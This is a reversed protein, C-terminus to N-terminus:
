HKLVVLKLLLNQQESTLKLFYVGNSVSYGTENCGDWYLEYENPILLENVITKVLKGSLDYVSLNIKTATERIIFKICTKKYFPNPQSKFEIINFTNPMKIKSSDTKIGFKKMVTDLLILRTLSDEIDSIKFRNCWIKYQKEYYFGAIAGSSDTFISTYDSPIFWEKTLPKSCLFSLGNGSIEPLVSDHVIEGNLLKNLWTNNGEIYINYGPQFLCEISDLAPTNCLFVSNFNNLWPCLSNLNDTEAGKCSLERLIDSIGFVKTTDKYVVFDGARVYNVTSISDNKVNEDYPLFNEFKFKYAIGVGKATWEPFSILKKELPKLSDILMRQNYIPIGNSDIQCYIESKVITKLGFNEVWCTPIFATDLPMWQTQTEVIGIDMGPIKKTNLSPDGFIKFERTTLTDQPCNTEYWIKAQLFADGIIGKEALYKLFIYNFSQSGGSLSDQWPYIYESSSDPCVICIAGERLLKTAKFPAFVFMPTHSFIRFNSLKIEGPDPIGNGNDWNWQKGISLFNIISYGNTIEENSSEAYEWYPSVINKLAASLNKKAIHPIALWQEKAAGTTLGPSAKAYNGTGEVFLVSRHEKGVEFEITKDLISSIRASDTYPIRGTIVGPIEEIPDGIVLLYKPLTEIKENRDMIKVKYGTTKKWEAFPKVVEMLQPPTLILYDYDAGKKNAYWKQIDSFNLIKDKIIDDLTTDVILSEQPVYKYSYDVDITIDQATTLKKTAPTYSCPYILIKALNYNRFKVTEVYKGPKKPIAYNLAYVSDTFKQLSDINKKLPFAEEKIFIGAPTIDYTEGLSPANRSIRCNVIEAGPPLALWITKCPLQPKGPEVSTGFGYIKINNQEIEYSPIHVKLIEASLICPLFIFAIPFKNM